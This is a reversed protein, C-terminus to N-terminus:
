VSVVMFSIWRTRLTKIRLMAIVALVYVGAAVWAVYPIIASGPLGLKLAQRGHMAAFTDGNLLISYTFFLALVLM